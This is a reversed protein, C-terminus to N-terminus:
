HITFGVALFVNFRTLLDIKPNFYLVFEKYLTIKGIAEAMANTDTDHTTVPLALYHMGKINPGKPPRFRFQPLGNPLFFDSGKRYNHAVRKLYGILAPSNIDFKYDETNDKELCSVYVQTAGKSWGSTMRSRVLPSGHMDSLWRKMKWGSKQDFYVLKEQTAPNILFLKPVFRDHRTPNKGIAAIELKLLFENQQLFQFKELIRNVIM